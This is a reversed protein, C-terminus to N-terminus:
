NDVEFFGKQVNNLRAVLFDYEPNGVLDSM